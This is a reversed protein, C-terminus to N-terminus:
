AGIISSINNLEVINGISTIKRATTGGALDFGDANNTFKQNNSNQTM